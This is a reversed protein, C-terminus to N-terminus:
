SHVRPPPPKCQSRLGPLLPKFNAHEAVSPYFLQFWTDDIFLTLRLYGSSLYKSPKSEQNVEDVICVSFSYVSVYIKNNNNAADNDMNPFVCVNIIFM